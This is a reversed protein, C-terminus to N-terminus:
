QDANTHDAEPNDKADQLERRVPCTAATPCDSIKEIARNLRNVSRRLNIAEKQIPEYIYQKFIQLTKEENVLETGTAEARMRKAEALAQEAQAEAEKVSSRLTAIATIAAILGGGLLFNLILSIIETTTM